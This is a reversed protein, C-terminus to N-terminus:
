EMYSVFQYCTPVLDFIVQTRTHRMFIYVLRLCVFREMGGVDVSYDGM